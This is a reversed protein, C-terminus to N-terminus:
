KHHLRWLIGGEALINRQTRSPSSYPPTLPPTHADTCLFVHKLTHLDRPLYRHESSKYTQKCPAFEKVISRLHSIDNNTPSDPFFEGPVVLPEGYAMEAPSVDLGEKPTTSLGLLVWPLQTGRTANNCLSILGTKLTRHFWEVMGNAKPKYATTYHVSTDLLQGMPTWLYSTFTTGRDSTIQEPIDFRSIRRSLLAATCFTSTADPIPIAEPWRRFHDIITFLYFQGASLPLPGVVDVHIHAFHRRPQHFPRPSTETHQQVESKQCSQVCNGRRPIHRAVRVKTVNATSNSTTFSTVPRLPSPINTDMSTSVRHQYRQLHHHQFRGTSHGEVTSGHAINESSTDRPGM